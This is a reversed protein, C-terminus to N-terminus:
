RLLGVLGEKGMGGKLVCEGVVLGYVVIWELVLCSFVSGMEETV